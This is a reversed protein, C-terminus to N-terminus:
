ELMEDKLTEVGSNDDMIGDNNVLIDVGGSELFTDKM